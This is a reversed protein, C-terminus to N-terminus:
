KPPMIPTDENYFVRIKISNHPQARNFLRFAIVDKGNRRAPMSRYYDGVVWTGDEMKLMAALSYDWKDSRLDSQLYLAKAFIELRFNNNKNVFWVTLMVHDSNAPDQHLKKYFYSGWGEDIVLWNEAQEMIAIYDEKAQVMNEAPWAKEVRSILFGGFVSIIVVFFLWYWVTKVTAKIGALSFSLSIASIILGFLVAPGFFEKGQQWRIM